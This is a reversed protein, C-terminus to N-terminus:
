VTSSQKANSHQEIYSTMFERLSPSFASYDFGIEKAKEFTQEATLGQRTALNMLAMTGARMSIACHILVPKPMEDICALVQTTLEETLEPLNVPADVYHLGLETAYNKEEHWFNTEHPSRLNLVSQYGAHAAEELDQETVQGAISLEPTVAKITDM